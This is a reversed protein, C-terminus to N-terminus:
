QKTAAAGMALMIWLATVVFPIWAALRTTSFPKSHWEALSKFDLFGAHSVDGVPVYKSIKLHNALRTGADKMQTRYHEALYRDQAGMMYWFFSVLAGLWAFLALSIHEGGLILGGGTIATEIGIFYNFRVWMRDFHAKLYDIKLEYDKEFFAGMPDPKEESSM